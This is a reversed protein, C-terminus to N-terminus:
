FNDLFSKEFFVKHRFGLLPFGSLLSFPLGFSILHLFLQCGFISHDLTLSLPSFVFPHFREFGFQADPLKKVVIHGNHEHRQECKVREEKIINSNQSKMFAM